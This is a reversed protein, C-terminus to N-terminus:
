IIGLAVFIVPPVPASLKNYKDQLESGTYKYLLNGYKNKIEVALNVGM